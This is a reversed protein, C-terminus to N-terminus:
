KSPDFQAFPVSRFIAKRNTWNALHMQEKSITKRSTYDIYPQAFPDMKWKDILQIRKLAEKPDQVLVYIFYRQPKCDYERLYRM